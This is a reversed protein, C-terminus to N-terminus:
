AMDTTRDGPEGYTALYVQNRGRHKAQYLARDAREILEFASDIGSAAGYVAVGVSATLKQWPSGEHQVELEAISERLLEAIELAQEHHTDPLLIVFEEGGYRAVLDNGRRLSKDFVRAIQKLCHDGAQHGYMDNFPKFYDIDLMIAALSLEHRRAAAWERELIEEFYRRNAVGTLGDTRSLRQLKFNAGELEKTREKVRAELEESLDRYKVLLQETERNKEHFVAAASSLEGLEHSASPLKL